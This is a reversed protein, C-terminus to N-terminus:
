DNDVPDPEGDLCRYIRDETQKLFKLTEWETEDDLNWKVTKVQHRIACVIYNLEIEDFGLRTVNKM